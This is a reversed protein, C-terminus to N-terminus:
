QPPLFGGSAGTLAPRFRGLFIDRACGTLHLRVLGSHAKLHQLFAVECLDQNRLAGSVDSHAGHDADSNVPSPTQDHWIRWSKPSTITCHFQNVILKTQNLHKQINFIKQIM